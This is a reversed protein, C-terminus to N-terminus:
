PTVWRETDSHRCVVTYAGRAADSPYMQRLREAEEEARQRATGGNWPHSVSGDLYRVGWQKQDGWTLTIKTGDEHVWLEGGTHPSTAAHRMRLARLMVRIAQKDIEKM